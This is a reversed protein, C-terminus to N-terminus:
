LRNVLTRTEVFFWAVFAAILGMGAGIIAEVLIIGLIMTETPIRLAAQISNYLAQWWIATLTSLGILAVILANLLAGKWYGNVWGTFVGPIVFNSLAVLYLFLAIREPNLLDYSKYLVYTVGIMVFYFILSLILGAILNKQDRRGLISIKRVRSDIIRTFERTLTMSVRDVTDKELMLKDGPTIELIESKHKKILEDFIKWVLKPNDDLDVVAVALLKRGDLTIYRYTMKVNEFEVVQLRSGLTDYGFMSVATIFNVILSHDKGAIHEIIYDPIRPHAYNWVPAGDESALYTLYIM